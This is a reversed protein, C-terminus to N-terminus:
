TFLWSKVRKVVLEFPQASTFENQPSRCFLLPHAKSKQMIPFNRAESVCLGILLSPRRTIVFVQLFLDTHTKDPYLIRTVEIGVLQLAEGFTVSCCVM